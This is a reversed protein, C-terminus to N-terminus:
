TFSMFHLVHKCSCTLFITVTLNRSSVVKCFHSHCCHQCLSLHDNLMQKTSFLSEPGSHLLAIPRFCCNVKAVILKCTKRCHSSLHLQNFSYRDMLQNSSSCLPQCLCPRRERVLSLRVSSIRALFQKLFVSKNFQVVSVVVQHLDDKYKGISMQGAIDQRAIKDTM